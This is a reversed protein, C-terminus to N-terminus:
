GNKDLVAIYSWYSITVVIASNYSINQLLWQIKLPTPM